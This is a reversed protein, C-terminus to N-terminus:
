IIQFEPIMGKSDTIKRGVAEGPGRNALIGPGKKIKKRGEFM